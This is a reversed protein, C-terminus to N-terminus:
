QQQNSGIGFEMGNNNSVLQNVNEMRLLTIFYYYFQITRLLSFLGGYLDNSFSTLSTPDYYYRYPHISNVRYYHPGNWSFLLADFSNFLAVLAHRTSELSLTLFCSLFSDPLQKETTFLFCM